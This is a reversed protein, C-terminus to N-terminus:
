LAVAATWLRQMAPHGWPMPEGADDWAQIGPEPAEPLPDGAAIREKPVVLRGEHSRVSLEGRMSESAVMREPERHALLDRGPLEGHDLGALALLTPAVDLLAVPADSSGPQQGPIRLVLAVQSNVDHLSYRHNFFDQDFLGEGHDSLVVVATDDAIGLDDLARILRGVQFDVLACSADYQGEIFAQDAPSLDVGLQPNAQAYAALADFNSPSPFDSGDAGVLAIPDYDPYLRGRHIVESFFASRVSDLYHGEYGPTEIGFLPGPKAYPAHPDYGHVMLLFPRDGAALEELRDLAEPTTQQFSGFNHMSSYRHFGAHMSFGPELHGGAVVAETRYGAQALRAALTPADAPLRYTFYDLEGLESAPRGMFLSAHSFLTENAQAFAREFSLSQEVLLDLSPTLPRGADDVAGLRDARFTDMSILLINPPGGRPSSGCGVVALMLLALGPNSPRHRPM